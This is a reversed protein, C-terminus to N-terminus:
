RYAGNTTLGKCVVGEKLNYINNRVDQIFQENLNGEYVVKSTPILSSFVKIFDRPKIFARNKHGVLVDFFM